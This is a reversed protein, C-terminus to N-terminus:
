NIPKIPSVGYGQKVCCYKRLEPCGLNNGGKADYRNCVARVGLGRLRGVM